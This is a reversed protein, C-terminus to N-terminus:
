HIIPATAAALLHEIVIKNLKLAGRASHAAQAFVDDLLCEHLANCIVEQLAFVEYQSAQLTPAREFALRMVTARVDECALILRYSSMIVHTVRGCERNQVLMKYQRQASM